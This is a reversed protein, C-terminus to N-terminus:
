APLLVVLYSIRPPSRAPRQPSLASLSAPTTATASHGLTTHREGRSEALAQNTKKCPRAAYNLSVKKCDVQGLRALTPIGPTCWWAPKKM